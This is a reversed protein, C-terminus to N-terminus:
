RGFLQVSEIRGCIVLQAKSMQIIQLDDGNVIICGYSVGIQIETPTYALIGKHNEILVRSQGTVEVLPLSVLNEMQKQLQPKDM